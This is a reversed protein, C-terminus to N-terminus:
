TYCYENFRIGSGSGGGGDGVYGGLHTTTGGSGQMQLGYFGQGYPVEFGTSTSVFPTEVAAKTKELSNKEM